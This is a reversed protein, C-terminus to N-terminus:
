RSDDSLKPMCIVNGLNATKSTRSKKLGANRAIVLSLRLEDLILITQDLHETGIVFSTCQAQM